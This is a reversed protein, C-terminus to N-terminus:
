MMWSAMKLVLNELQKIGAASIMLIKQGRLVIKQHEPDVNNDLYSWQTNTNILQM